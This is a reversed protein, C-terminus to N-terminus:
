RSPRLLRWGNADAELGKYGAYKDYTENMEDISDFYGVIYAASFSDGPKVPRGGIEEIM